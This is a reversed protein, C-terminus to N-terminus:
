PLALIDIREAYFYLIIGVEQTHEPEREPVSVTEVTSVPLLLCTAMLRHCEHMEQKICSGEM